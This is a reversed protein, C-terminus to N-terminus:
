FPRWKKKESFSMYGANIGLRWGVGLRVPILVINGHRLYSVSFGGILYARGEGQAFKKYLDQSDYLNYVLVFVKNADGGLDLGLSPGRWYVDRQGEVKHFMTGSGYRVGLVVAGGAERGAIYANPRGQDKLIKEIVGALGAAGKGFVGEAASVVDEREYTARVAQERTTGPAQRPAGRDYQQAGDQPYNAQPYSDQPSGNQQYNDQPPPTDQSYPDSDQRPPPPLDQRQQQPSIDSDIATNPDIQTVQAAAPMAGGLLGIAAWLMISRVRM